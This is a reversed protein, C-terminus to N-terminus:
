RMERAANELTQRRETDSMGNWQAQSRAREEDSLGNWYKMLNDQVRPSMKVGLAAGLQAFTDRTVPGSVRNAVPRKSIVTQSPSSRPGGASSSSSSRTRGSSPPRGSRAPPSSGSSAGDLPNFTKQQGNWEITVSDPGIALVKADGVKAGVKVWQGNILAEDGLIGMVQKVPNEQPPPPAFLNNKKLDDAAKKSRDIQATLHKADPKSQAIAQKVADEAGATTVFFGTVKVAILLVSIVAVALLVTAVLERKDKLYDIRM